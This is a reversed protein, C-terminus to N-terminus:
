ANVAMTNAVVAAALAKTAQGAAVAILRKMSMKTKRIQRGQGNEKMAGKLTCCEWSLLLIIDFNM